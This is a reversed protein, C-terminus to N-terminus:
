NKQIFKISFQTMLFWGAAKENLMLRLKQGCRRLLTLSQRSLFRNYTDHSITFDAREIVILFRYM